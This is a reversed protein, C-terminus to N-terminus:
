RPQDQKPPAELPQLQFLYSNKTGNIISEGSAQYAISPSIAFCNCSSHANALVNDVPEVNVTENLFLKGLEKELREYMTYNIVYANATYGGMVKALHPSFPQNKRSPHAYTMFYFLDWEKPMEKLAERFLTGTKNLTASLHDPAVIGFGNDDELIMVSRNKLLAEFAAKKLAPDQKEDATKLDQQAKAFREKMLKIIRYHSIYCGTEGQRQREFQKRGEETTLDLQAWNMGMKKWLAEPVDKRGNVAKFIEFDKAGVKKLNETVFKLRDPRDEMNIIVITGFLTNLQWDQDLKEPSWLMLQSAAIAQHNPFLASPIAGEDFGNLPKYLSLLLILFPIMNLM